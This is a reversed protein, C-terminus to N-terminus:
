QQLLGDRDHRVALDEIEKIPCPLVVMIHAAVRVLGASVDVKGEVPASCSLAPGSSPVGCSLQACM